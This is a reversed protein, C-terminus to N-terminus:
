RPQNQNVVPLIINANVEPIRLYASPMKGFADKKEIANASKLREYITPHGNIAAWHLATRGSGQKNDALNIDQVHQILLEVNDLCGKAAARRLAVEVTPLKNDDRREQLQRLTTHLASEVIPQELKNEAKSPEKFMQLLQAVKTLPPQLSNTGAASASQAYGKEEAKRTKLQAQHDAYLKWNDHIYVCDVIHSSFDFAKVLLALETARICNVIADRVDTRPTNELIQELKNLLGMEEPSVQIYKKFRQAISSVNLYFMESYNSNGINLLQQLMMTTLAIRGSQSILAAENTIAFFKEWIKKFIDHTARDIEFYTSKQTLQHQALIAKAQLTLETDHLGLKGWGNISYIVPALDLDSGVSLIENVKGVLLMKREDPHSLLETMDFVHQGLRGNYDVSVGEISADLVIVEIPTGTNAKKIKELTLDSECGARKYVRKVCNKGVFDIDKQIWEPPYMQDVHTLSILGKNEGIGILILINCVSFKDSYLGIINDPTKKAHIRASKCQPVSIYFKKCKSDPLNNAYVKRGHALEKDYRELRALTANANKYHGEISKSLREISALCREHRSKINKTRKDEAGFMNQYLSHAIFFHTAAEDYNELKEYSSGLNYYCVGIEEAHANDAKLKTVLENFLNIANQYQGNKFASMAENKIKVHEEKM